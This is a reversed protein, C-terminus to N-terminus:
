NQKPSNRTREDLLIRAATAVRMLYLGGRLVFVGMIACVIGEVLSVGSNLFLLSQLVIFVGLLAILLGFMERFLYSFM